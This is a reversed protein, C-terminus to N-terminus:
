LEAQSAANLLNLLSEITEPTHFQPFVAGAQKWLQDYIGDFFATLETESPQGNEPHTILSKQRLASVLAIFDRMDNTNLM